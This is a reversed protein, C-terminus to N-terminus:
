KHEATRTTCRVCVRGRPKKDSLETGAIFLKGCRTSRMSDGVLQFIHWVGKQRGPFRGYIFKAREPKPQKRYDTIKMTESEMNKNEERDQHRSLDM